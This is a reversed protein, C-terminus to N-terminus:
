TIRYWDRKQLEVHLWNLEDPEGVVILYDGSLPCRVILHENNIEIFRLSNKLNHCREKVYKYCDRKDDFEYPIFTDTM